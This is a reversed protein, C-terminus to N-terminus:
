RPEISPETVGVIAKLFQILNTTHPAVNSSKIDDERLYLHCIYFKENYLYNQKDQRYSDITKVYM